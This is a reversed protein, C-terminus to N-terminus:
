ALLVQAEQFLQRVPLLYPCYKECLGCNLCPQLSTKLQAFKQRAWEKKEQGEFYHLYRLVTPLPNSQPCVKECTGCMRCTLRSTKAVLRYLNRKEKETIEQGVVALDEEMQQFNLMETVVTTLYPNSLVWKLMAQYISTTGQQYATLDQRRGGVKLTKMAVLGIERDFAQQFLEKIGSVGLYDPYTRIPNEVKQLDYINYGIQIVDYLNCEIAKTFVQLHNQHCSFGRYRYKGQQKLQDFATLIREDTLHEPNSVGHTMLVDIYDFQLRRLSGEVTRIVSTITDQPRFHFKTAVYIKDRGVERALRGIQREANGGMYTHSCDIYNVGRDIIERFLGWDPLPSSGLSIESVYFGTRGLRRYIMNGKKIRHPPSSASTFLLPSLPLSSLTFFSKKIFLRRSNM